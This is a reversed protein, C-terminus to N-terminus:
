GVGLWKRRMAVVALWAVAVAVGPEPVLIAQAHPALENWDALTIGRGTAWSSTVFSSGNMATIMPEHYMTGYLVMASLLAGRANQHLEDSYLNYFGQHKWANGCPALLTRAPCFVASLNDHAATYAIFLNDCSAPQENSRGGWQYMVIVANSSRELSWTALTQSNSVTKAPWTPGAYNKEDDYYDQLVVFDWNETAPIGTRIIDNPAESSIKAIHNSLSQGWLIQRKITPAPHGATTALAAIAGPIDSLETLSNGLFLLNYPREAGHLVTAAFLVATLLASYLLNKM